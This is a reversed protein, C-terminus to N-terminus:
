ETIILYGTKTVAVTHEYHASLQGDKTCYTFGDDALAIEWTGINVMPEIALVMGQKLVINEFGGNKPVFNPIQPEEHVGYGVGHGVLERVVSFGHSEVYDQIVKSIDFLTKNPRIQRIGLMLAKNTTRLLSKAQKEVKGVPITVAMDTYFGKATVNM